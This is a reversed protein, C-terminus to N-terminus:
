KEIKIQTLVDQKTALEAQGAPFNSKGLMFAVIDTTQQASLSGPASAPMSTNIKEYLDGVNKWNAIFDNGALAPMPGSGALDEGHCAACNDKYLAEGRKAQEATYVGEKVSKAGQAGVSAYLGSMMFGSVTLIAISKKM